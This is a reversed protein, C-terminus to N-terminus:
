LLEGVVERQGSERGPLRADQLCGNAEDAVGVDPTARALIGLRRESHLSGTAEVAGSEDPADVLKLDVGAAGRKGARQLASRRKRHAALHRRSLADRKGPELRTVNKKPTGGTGARFRGLDVVCPDVEAVAPEDMR